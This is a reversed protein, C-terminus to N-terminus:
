RCRCSRDTSNWSRQPLPWSSDRAMLSRFRIRRQIANPAMMSTTVASVTTIPNVTMSNVLQGSARIKMAAATGITM